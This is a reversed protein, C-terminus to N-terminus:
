GAIHYVGYTGDSSRTHQAELCRCRAEQIQDLNVTENTISILEFVFKLIGDVFEM